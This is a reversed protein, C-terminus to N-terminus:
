PEAGARVPPGREAIDVARHPRVRAQMVAANTLGWLKLYHGKDDKGAAALLSGDPSVATTRPRDANAPFQCLEVGLEADWIRVTGDASATVVRRGDPTFVAMDVAGEHGTLLHLEVGSAVDWIRATGDASGTVLLSQDRSFAVRLVTAMHGALFGRPQGTECASLYVRGVATGRALLRGDPSVAQCWNQGRVLRQRQQGTEADILWPQKYAVLDDGLCFEAVTKAPSQEVGVTLEWLRKPGALSWMSVARRSTAVIREGDVSFAAGVAARELGGLRAVDRGSAAEWVRIEGDAGPSNVAAALLNGDPSFCVMAVSAEALPLMLRREVTAVDWVELDGGAAAILLDKGTPSFAVALPAGALPLTDLPRTLSRSWIRITGDSGGSALCEGDAAFALALVEGTHGVFQKQLAGSAAEWLCIRGGRDATAIQHGDDSWAAATVVAAHNVLTQELRGDAVSWIEIDRDSASTLLRRGDASFALVLENSSLSGPIRLTTLREGSGIDFVCVQSATGAVPVVTALRDGSPSFLFADIVGGAELLALFAGKMGDWIELRGNETLVAVSGGGPSFAVRKLRGPRKGLRAMEEGEPGREIVVQGDENMVLRRGDPALDLVEGAQVALAVPRSRVAQPVAREEFSAPGTIEYSVQRLNHTLRLDGPRHSMAEMGSQLYPRPRHFREVTLADLRRGDPSFVLKVVPRGTPELVMLADDLQAGLCLMELPPKLGVLKMTEDYIARAARPNQSDLFSQLSRVNARYLQHNALDAATAALARQREARIALLSMGVAAMVLTVLVGAVGLAAARHRGALRALSEFLGPPRAVIPRGALHRDIDSALASATPYRRSRDKDLCTAVIATLDGRLQRDATALSKPEVDRVVRAVEYIPRDRVEYPLSGTLLEYLVLGLAYIDARADIDDVSGFLQEPAMYQATGLLEGTGTHMTTLRGEDATSRAVGFDIIKPQGSADVLINGPKLDRHVISREHGHAIGSCVQRFLQVRERRSLNREAAFETISRPQEVYEMVFYPTDHGLIRAVGASYIRAIGPHSLSGLIQAEYALRRAAATSVIWQRIVKVAVTRHTSDQVGEYVRGMGGAGLFRVIRVDGVLTGLAMDDAETAVVRGMFATLGVFSLPEAASEDLDAADEPLPGSDPRSERM